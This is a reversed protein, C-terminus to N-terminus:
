RGSRSTRKSSRRKSTRKPNRRMGAEDIADVIQQASMDWVHDNEDRWTGTRAPGILQQGAAEVEEVMKPMVRRDRLEAALNGDEIGANWWDVAQDVSFRRIFWPGVYHESNRGDPDSTFDAALWEEAPYLWQNEEDDGDRYESWEEFNISKFGLHTTGEPNWRRKLRVRGQPDQGPVRKPAGVEREFLEIQKSPPLPPDRQPLLEILKNTMRAVAVLEDLDNPVGGHESIKYLVASPFKVYEEPTVNESDLSGALEAENYSIGAQMWAAAQEANATNDNWERAYYELHEEEVDYGHQEIADAYAQLAPPIKNTSVGEEELWEYFEDVYKKYKEAPKENQKGQTQRVREGKVEITVHPQGKADRLSYITTGGRGVEDAYSGVCHQMKHGEADLQESTTLKQATWGDALKAVVEGQPIPGEEEEWQKAKDWAKDFDYQGLNPRTAEYWQALMTGGRRMKGLLTRYDRLKDSPDDKPTYPTSPDVAKAMADYSRALHTAMWPFIPDARHRTKFQPMLSVLDVAATVFAPTPDDIFPTDTLSSPGWRMLDDAFKADADKVQQYLTEVWRDVGVANAVVVIMDRVVVPKKTGYTKLIFKLRDNTPNQTLLM